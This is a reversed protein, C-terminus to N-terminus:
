PAAKTPSQTVIRFMLATSAENAVVPAYTTKMRSVFNLPNKLEFFKVGQKELAAKAAAEKEARLRRMHTASEKAAAQFAERDAADLSKWRQASVVIAEPLVNHHSFIYNPAEKYHNSILYSVIDNEAMDLENADLAAQVKDYALTSPVAGLGKVMNIMSERNAVRIRKGEFESAYQPAKGRSYFSRSGGNYWALVTFGKAELSKRLSDGIDGDLVQMMHNQDRFLFPLSMVEMEPVAEALGANSIIALDVEGKKFKPLVEKQNGLDQRWLVQGSYKNNTKQQLVQFFHALGQHNPYENNELVWGKLPTAASAAHIGLCLLLAATLLRRM